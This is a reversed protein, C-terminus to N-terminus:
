RGGKGDTLNQPANHSASARSHGLGALNNNNREGTFLDFSVLSICSLYALIRSISLLLSSRWRHHVGAIIPEGEPADGRRGRGAVVPVALRKTTPPELILEVAAEAERSLPRSEERGLGLRPTLLGDVTPPDVGGVKAERGHAAVRGPARAPGVEAADCLIVSSPSPVAKTLEVDEEVEEEM